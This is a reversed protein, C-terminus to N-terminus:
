GFARLYLEEKTINYHVSAFPRFAAVQFIKPILWDISSKTDERGRDRNVTSCQCKHLRNSPSLGPDSNHIQIQTVQPIEKRNGLLKLEGFRRLPEM